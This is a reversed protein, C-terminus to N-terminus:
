PHLVSVSYTATWDAPLNGSDYMRICYNGAYVSGTLVDSGAKGNVNTILGIGCNSGDWTALSVGLGMTALPGVSNLTITIPGYASVPFSHVVSGNQGFSGSFTETKTAPTPTLPAYPDKCGAVGAAVTVAVAFGVVARRMSFLRM